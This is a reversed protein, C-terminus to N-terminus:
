KGKTDGKITPFPSQPATVAKVLARNEIFANWARVVLEFREASRLGNDTFVRNRVTLVPSGMKLNEGTKFQHMFINAQEPYTESAIYCVAALHTTVAKVKPAMKAKLVWDILGPNARVFDLTERNKHTANGRAEGRRYAMVLKATAALAAQQPYKEMSLLDSASRGKGTDITTFTAPDIGRTVVSYFPTDSEICAWLRHQGDQLVGDWDFIIAEGNLDWKGDKMDRAYGMAKSHSLARNHTHGELWAAAQKPTILMVASHIKSVKKTTM